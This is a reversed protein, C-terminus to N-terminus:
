TGQELSARCERAVAQLSAFREASDVFSLLAQKGEPGRHAELSRPERVLELVHRTFPESYPPAALDLLSKILHRVLSLDAGHIWSHCTSLVPFVCGRALLLLLCDLVQRRLTVTVLANHDSDTPPEHVLCAHLLACVANHLADHKAAIGMILRLVVPLYSLNYRAGSFRPNTLNTHAWLLVGCAAAPEVICRQLATVSASIESVENRECISQAESLNALAAEHRNNGASAGGSGGEHVAHVGPAASGAAARSLVTLLMGRTVPKPAYAPDFLAALLLRLMAPQSLVSVYDGIASQEHLTHADASAIAGGTLVSVLCSMMVSHSCARM